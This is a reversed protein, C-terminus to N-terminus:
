DPFIGCAEPCVLWHPVIVSLPELPQAVLSAEVRQLQLFDWTAIFVWCPWLFLYVQYSRFEFAAHPWAHPTSKSLGFPVMEIMVSLEIACHQELTETELDPAERTAWHYLIQRGICSICSTPSWDRPWSSGRSSAIAVWELIGAQSIGHVSSVPPSCDLPDCFLWLRSLVCVIPKKSQKRVEGCMEIRYFLCSQAHVCTNEILLLQLFSIQTQPFAKISQNIWVVFMKGVARQTGSGATPASPVSFISVPGNQIWENSKQGESDGEVWMDTHCGRVSWEPKREQWRRWSPKGSWLLEFSLRKRM